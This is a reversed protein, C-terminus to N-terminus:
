NLEQLFSTLKDYFPEFTGSLILGEVQSSLNFDQLVRELVSYVDFRSTSGDTNNHELIIWKEGVEYHIATSGEAIISYLTVIEYSAMKKLLTLRSEEVSMNNKLNYSHLAVLINPINNETAATMDLNFRFDRAFDMFDLAHGVAVALQMDKQDADGTEIKRKLRKALKELKSYTYVGM